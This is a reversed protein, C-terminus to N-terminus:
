SFEQVALNSSAGSAIANIAGRYFDYEDMNYVGQPFLTMGSNLVAPAGFGLSINNTSTNVLRVSTRSANAALVQTSTLGVTVFTPASPNLVSKTSVLIAVPPNLSGAEHVQEIGNIDVSM